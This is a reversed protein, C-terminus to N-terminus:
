AKEEASMYKNATDHLPCTGDNFVTSLDSLSVVCTCTASARSTAIAVFDEIILRQLDQASEVRRSKIM